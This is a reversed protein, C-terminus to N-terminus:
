LSGPLASVEEFDRKWKKQININLVSIASDDPLRIKIKQPFWISNEMITIGTENGGVSKLPERKEM